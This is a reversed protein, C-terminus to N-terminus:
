RAHQGKDGYDDDDRRWVCCPANCCHGHLELEHRGHYAQGEKFTPVRGLQDVGPSLLEAAREATVAFNAVEDPGLEERDGDPYQV